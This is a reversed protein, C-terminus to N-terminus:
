QHDENLDEVVRRILQGPNIKPEGFWKLMKAPDGFVSHDEGGRQRDFIVRGRGLRSQIAEALERKTWIRPHCCNVVAPPTATYELARTTVRIFDEYGMVQLKSDPDDGLSREQLIDEAIHRIIGHKRSNAHAYRLHIGSGYYRRCFYDILREAAYRSRGYESDPLCSSREKMPDPGSGYVNLTSGNIIRASGAYREVVSGVGYFNIDWHLDPRTKDWIELFVVDADPLQDPSGTLVDFQFTEVGHSELARRKGSSSMRAAGYVTWNEGLLTVALRSGIRGTVGIILAKPQNDPATTIM